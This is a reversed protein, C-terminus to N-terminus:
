RLATQDRAAIRRGHIFICVSLTAVVPITWGFFFFSFSFGDLRSICGIGGFGIACHDYAPRRLTLILLGWLLVSSFMTFLVPRWAKPQALQRRLVAWALLVYIIVWGLVAFLNHFSDRQFVFTHGLRPDCTM